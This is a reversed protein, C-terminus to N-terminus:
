GPWETATLLFRTARDDTPEALLYVRGQMRRHHHIGDEGTTARHPSSTSFACHTAGTSSPHVDCRNALHNRLRECLASLTASPDDLHVATELEIDFLNEVRTSAGGRTVAGPQPPLDPIELSEADIGQHCRFLPRDDRVTCGLSLATLVALAPALHRPRVTSSM